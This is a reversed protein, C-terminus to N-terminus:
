LDSREPWGRGWDIAIDTPRTTREAEMPGFKRGEREKLLRCIAQYASPEHDQLYAIAFPEVFLTRELYLAANTSAERMSSFFRNYVSSPSPSRGARLTGNAREFIEFVQDVEYNWDEIGVLKEADLRLSGRESFIDDVHALIDFRAGLYDDYEMVLLSYLRAIQEQSGLMGVIYPINDEMGEEIEDARRYYEISAATTEFPFTLAKMCTRLATTGEGSTHGDNRLLTFALRGYTYGALEGEYGDLLRLAERLPRVDKQRREQILFGMDLEGFEHLTAMYQNRRFDEHARKMRDELSMRQNDQYYTQRDEM